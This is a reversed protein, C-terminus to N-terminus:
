LAKLAEEITDNGSLLEFTKNKANEETISAIMVDAVDERPIDRSGPDELKEKAEVMGTGKDFTLGGPRVVTYALGSAKLHEDANKKAEAYHKIKGGPNEVGIASLIIYQKVGHAKSADVLKNNGEEDVTVTKEPGTKSGSGAAFIVVDMGKPADSVDGELDSIVADKAGLSKLEDAQEPKRIMAFVDHENSKGLKEVLLRGTHGNAGAVLINM